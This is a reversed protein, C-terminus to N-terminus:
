KSLPVLTNIEEWVYAKYETAGSIKDFTVTVEGSAKITRTASVVGIMAGESNYAALLIKIDEADTDSVNEVEVKVKKSTTTIKAVDLVPKEVVKGDADIYMIEVGSVLKTGDYLSVAYYGSEIGLSAPSVSAMNYNFKVSTQAAPTNSVVEKFDVLELPSVKLVPNAYKDSNGSYVVIEGGEAALDVQAVPVTNRMNYAVLTGAAEGNCTLYITKAGFDKNSFDFSLSGSGNEIYKTVDVSVKSGSDNLYYAKITASDSVNVSEVYVDAIDEYVYLTDYTVFLPEDTTRFYMSMSDDSSGIRYLCDADLNKFEGTYSEAYNNIQSFTLDDATIHQVYEEEGTESDRKYLYVNIEDNGSYAAACKFTIDTGTYLEITQGNAYGAYASAGDVYIRGGPTADYWPEVYINATAEGFATKVQIQVTECPQLKSTFEPFSVSLNTYKKIVESWTVGTYQVEINSGRSIVEGDRLINIETIDEAEIAEGSIVDLELSSVETINDVLFNVGGLEVEIGDHDKYADWLDIMRYDGNVDVYCSDYGDMDITFKATAIEGEGMTLVGLPEADYETFWLNYEGPELGRVIFQYETGGIRKVGDFSFDSESYYLFGTWSQIVEKDGNYRLYLDYYGGTDEPPPLRFLVTTYDSYAQRIYYKDSTIAVNGDYDLAEVYFNELDEPIYAFNVVAYYYPTTDTMCENTVGVSEVYINDGMNIQTTILEKVGGDFTNVTTTMMYSGSEVDVPFATYIGFTVDYTYSVPIEEAEFVTNGSYDEIKIDVSKPDFDIGDAFYYEINREPQNTMIYEPYVTYGPNVLTVPGYTTKPYNNIVYLDYTGEDLGYTDIYSIELGTVYYYDDDYIEMYDLWAFRIEESTARNVAYFTFSGGDIPDPFTLEVPSNVPLAITVDYKFPIVTDEAQSVVALSLLMSLVIVISLVKKM